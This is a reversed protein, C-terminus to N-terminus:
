PLKAVSRLPYRANDWWREVSWAMAFSGWEEPPTVIANLIASQNAEDRCTIVVKGHDAIVGNSAPKASVAVSWPPVAEEVRM